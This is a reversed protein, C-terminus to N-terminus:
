KKDAIRKLSAIKEAVLEQTMAEITDNINM